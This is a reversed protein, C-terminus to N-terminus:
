CSEVIHKTNSQNLYWYIKDYIIYRFYRMELSDDVRSDQFVFIGRVLREYMRKAINDFLRAPNKVGLAAFIKDCISQICTNSLADHIRYLGLLHRDTYEAKNQVSTLTAILAKGARHVCAENNLPADKYENVCALFEDM